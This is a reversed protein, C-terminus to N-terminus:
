RPVIMIAAYNVAARQWAHARVRQPKGFLEQRLQTGDGSLEKYVGDLALKFVGAGLRPQPYDSVWEFDACANLCVVDQESGPARRTGLVGGEALLVDACLQLERRYDSPDILVLVM